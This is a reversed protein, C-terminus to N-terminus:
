TGWFPSHGPILVRAHDGSAQLQRPGVAEGPWLPEGGESVRPRITKGGLRLGKRAEGTVTFSHLPNVGHLCGGEGQTGLSPVPCSHPSGKM